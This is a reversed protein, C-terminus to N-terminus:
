ARPSPLPGDAKILAEMDKGPVYEMVFYHLVPSEPDADTMEGADMAAVIHPHELQAVARVEAYFRKLDETSKSRPMSLVKVAVQRRMRVHEAKYVTGMGGSNLRELVRYNGLILGFLKGGRIREAQFETLLGHELLRAVLAGADECRSCEEQRASSLMEYDDPLVIRSDLLRQLIATNGHVGPSAGWFHPTM